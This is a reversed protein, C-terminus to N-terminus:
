AAAQQRSVWPTLWRGVASILVFAIGAVVTVILALAYVRQDNLTEESNLIGLGIGQQAGLYEGIIAGLMAAPGAIALGTFMGPLATKFRVKALSKFRGGGYARVLDLSTPDVSRLGGLTAILTTFLVSMAALTIKPASGNLVIELVPGIAIIPMCYTALVVRLLGKELIPFLVFGLALLIAIINGWLFGLGAEGLTTTLAPLTSYGPDDFVTAIVSTPTPLVHKNALVTLALIEWILVVGTIGVAGGLWRSRDVGFLRRFWGVAASV